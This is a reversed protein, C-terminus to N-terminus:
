FISTPLQYLVCLKTKRLTQYKRSWCISERLVGEWAQYSQAKSRGFLTWLEKQFRALANCVHFRDTRVRPLDLKAIGQLQFSGGPAKHGSGLSLM